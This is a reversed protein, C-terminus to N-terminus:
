LCRLGHEGGGFETAIGCLVITTLGRRRLQLDLHTGYFDGWQRKLIVIDRPHSGLDPVFDSWGPPLTAPGQASQDVAPSLRERGDQSGGVHVLVPRTGSERAAVLRACNAVVSSASHPAGPVGAIGKQIDNVVVATRRPALILESM